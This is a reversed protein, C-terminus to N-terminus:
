CRPKFSSGCGCTSEASPNTISFGAGTLGPRFDITAGDLYSKSIPDVVITVGNSQIQLDTINPGTELLMGYSFGSCGGGQVFVRLVTMEPQEAQLELFQVVAQPTITIM